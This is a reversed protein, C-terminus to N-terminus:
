SGGAEAKSLLKAAESRSPDDPTLNDAALYKKLLTRAEDLRRKSRVWTEARAYLVRPSAPAIRAARDSWEDSEAHRGRRALYRALNMIQGANAPQMEVAHRLAAEASEYQKAKEDLRSRAHWAEVPDIQDLVPLLARAKDAGGGVLGPADLYFDFLDNVADRNKPDLKVAKEFAERAQGALSLGHLAFATEARRGQARGLWLQIVADHPAYSAAKELVDSSRRLDGTMFRCQGLLRLEGPDTSSERLLRAAGAYDTHAYLNEAREVNGGSALVSTAAMLYILARWM